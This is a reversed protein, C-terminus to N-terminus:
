LGLGKFANEFADENESSSENHQVVEEATEDIYIIYNNTSNKIGNKVDCNINVDNKTSNNANNKTSDNITTDIKADINTDNKSIYKYLVNKIFEAKNNQTSLFLKIARDRENDMNLTFSERSPKETAKQRAM